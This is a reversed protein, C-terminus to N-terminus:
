IFELAPVEISSLSEEGECFSSPFYEDEIDKFKEEEFVFKIKWERKQRNFERQTLGRLRFLYDM